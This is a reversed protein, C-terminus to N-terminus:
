TPAISLTRRMSLFVARQGAKAEELLPELQGQRFSEQTEIHAPDSAKGPIFGVKRCEMGIRKLFARIQSPSRQIGTLAEIKAQAESVSRPPHQQFYERLSIAHENLASPQGRYHLPKLAEIGGQQYQRLYKVLTMKSIQCLRRIEHHALGQSKLYLVEMKKQVLPHPHHYREYHLAEIDAASFEIRIM